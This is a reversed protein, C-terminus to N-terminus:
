LRLPPPRRRHSRPPASVTTKQHALFGKQKTIKDMLSRANNTPKWYSSNKPLHLSDNPAKKFENFLEDGLVANLIADAAFFNGEEFCKQAVDVFHQMRKAKEKESGVARVGQIIADSINKKVHEELVSADASGARVNGFLAAIKGTLDAAADKPTRGLVFRLNSTDFLKARDQVLSETLRARLDNYVQNKFYILEKSGHTDTDKEISLRKLRARVQEIDPTRGEEVAQKVLYLDRTIIQKDVEWVAKTLRIGLEKAAASGKPFSTSLLQEMAQIKNACEDAYRDFRSSLPKLSALKELSRDLSEFQSLAETKDLSRSGQYPVVPRGEEVHSLNVRAQNLADQSAWLAYLRSRPTAKDRCQEELRGIMREIIALAGECGELDSNANASREKPTSQAFRTFFIDFIRFQNEIQGLSEKWAAEEKVRTSEKAQTAKEAERRDANIQSEAHYIQELEKTHYPEMANSIAQLLSYYQKPLNFVANDERITYSHLTYRKLSRLISEATRPDGKKLCEEAIKLFYTMKRPVAAVSCNTLEQSILQYIDDNRADLAKQLGEGGSKKILTSLFTYSMDMLRKATKKVDKPDLTQQMHGVWYSSLVTRRQSNKANVVGDLAEITSSLRKSITSVETPEAPKLFKQVRGRLLRSKLDAPPQTSLNEKNSVIERHEETLADFRAKLEIFEDAIAPDLGTPASHIIKENLSKLQKEISSLNKLVDSERKKLVNISKTNLSFQPEVKARQHAFAAQKAKQVKTPKAAKMTSTKHLRDTELRSVGSSTVSSSRDM